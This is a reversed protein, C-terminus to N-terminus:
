QIVSHLHQGAISRPFNRPKVGNPQNNVIMRKLELNPIASQPNYSKFM